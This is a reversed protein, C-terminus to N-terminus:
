VLNAIDARTDRHLSEFSCRACPLFLALAATGFTLLAAYGLWRSLGFAGAIVAYPALFAAALMVLPALNRAGARLSEALAAVPPRGDLATLAVAHLLVLVLWGYALALLPVLLWGSARGGALADAGLGGIPMGGILVYGLMQLAVYGGLALVCLMLMPLLREEDRGLRTFARGPAVLYAHALDRWRGPALPVPARVADREAALWLGGAALPTLLILLLDGLFPVRHLLLAALLYVLAAGLWRERERRLRELGCAIWDRAARAPLKAIAM